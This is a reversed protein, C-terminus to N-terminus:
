SGALRGRFLNGGGVVMATQVGLDHVSAVEDALGALCVPDTGTGATGATGAFAEGSLKVVVRAYRGM